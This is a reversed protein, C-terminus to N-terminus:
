RRSHRALQDNMMGAETRAIRDAVAIYSAHRVEFPSVIERRHCQMELHPSRRRSKRVTVGRLAVAISGPAEERTPFPRSTRHIATDPACLVGGDLIPAAAASESLM